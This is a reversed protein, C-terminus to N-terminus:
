LKYTLLLYYFANSEGNNNSANERVQLLIIGNNINIYLQTKKNNACIIIKDIPELPSIDILFTYNFFIQYPLLM